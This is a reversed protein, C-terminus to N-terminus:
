SSIAIILRLWSAGIVGPTSSQGDILWSPCQHRLALFLFERVASRKHLGKFVIITPFNDYDSSSIPVIAFVANAVQQLWSISSREKCPWKLWWCIIQMVLLLDRKLIVLCHPHAEFNQAYCWDESSSADKQSRLWLGPHIFSLASCALFPNRLNTRYYILITGIM